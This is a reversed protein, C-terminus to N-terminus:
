YLHTAKEHHMFSMKQRDRSIKSSVIFELIIEYWDGSDM